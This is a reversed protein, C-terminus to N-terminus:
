EWESVRKGESDQLQGSAVIVIDILWWIGLGGITFLMAFATATRGVYFRHGGAIGLLLVLILAIARSHKSTDADRSKGTPGAAQAGSYARQDDSNLRAIRRGNSDRFERTVIWVVDLIVWM